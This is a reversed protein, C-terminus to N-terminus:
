DSGPLSEVWAVIRAALEDTTQPSVIDGALVHHAPDGSESVEVLEHPAQWRAMVAETAAPDVIQDDRSFLALVPITIDSIDARLTARVLAAMPVLAGIPYSTTWNSAQADSAPEFGRTEGGILPLIDRAWPLDLVFAWRDRLGFNPSILVLGAVDEMLGPRTAGFTALTGGTSSGIVIVRNGLSRGIAVAEALDNVWANVEAQEMAAGDRGHGTLRTYFLNAGLSAAVLDALPRTEGKASSFGHVYVLAIPTRARSAPYAWVIEKQANPRLNPIDAETRALYTDPDSGIATPDFTITTDVPERPGFLWAVGAALLLILVVALLTKWLM